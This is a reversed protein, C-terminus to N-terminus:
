LEPPSARGVVVIGGRGGLWAVREGAADVPSPGAPPDPRGLVLRLVLPHAGRTIARGLRLAAVLGVVPPADVPALLVFEPAPATGLHDKLPPQRALLLAYAGAPVAQGRYDTFRGSVALTALRAGDDVAAGGTLDAWAAEPTLRLAFEPAEVLLPSPLPETALLLALLAATM